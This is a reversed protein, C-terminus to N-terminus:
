GKQIEVRDIGRVREVSGGSPVALVPPVKSALNLVPARDRKFYNWFREKGQHEHQIVDVLEWGDAGFENTLQNASLPGDSIAVRYEYRM